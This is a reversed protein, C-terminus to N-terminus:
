LNGISIYFAVYKTQKM